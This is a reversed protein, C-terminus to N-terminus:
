RALPSRDYDALLAAVDPYVKDAGAEELTQEDFGGTLVAVTGIGARGAAEVDYPTDGVAVAEDAAVGVKKLAAAFIDPAPKSTAVDDACTAVEVVDGVGLLDVYRDLDDKSASTALVVSRGEAHARKLLAAAGPFPEVREILESQFLRGHADILKEHEDESLAPLVTPLMTDGGKGMQARLDGESVEHGANSFVRLWAEVHLDTSDVLTGDIDFLIAKIMLRVHCAASTRTWGCRLGLVPCGQGAGVYEAVRDGAM